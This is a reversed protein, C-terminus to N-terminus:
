WTLHHNLPLPAFRINDDYSFLNLITMIFNCSFLLLLLLLLYLYTLNYNGCYTAIEVITQCNSPFFSQANTHCTWPSSM